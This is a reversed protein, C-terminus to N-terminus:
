DAPMPWLALAEGNPRREIRAYANGRLDHNMMMARWFEFPTMRRNPSEHCLQYLSSDRALKKEGAKTEYAFFPLSAVINARREICAWVAAIQLAGDPGINATDSVLATSPSSTQLGRTEGIAGGFGFWSRWNYTAM